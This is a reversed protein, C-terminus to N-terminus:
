NTRKDLEKTKLIQLMKEKKTQDQLRQIADQLEVALDDVSLRSEELLRRGVLDAILQRERSNPWLALLEATSGIKKEGLFVSIRALFQTDPGNVISFINKPMLSVLSPTQALISIMHQALSLVQSSRRYRQERESNDKNDKVLSYLESPQISLQKAVEEILLRYFLGKPMADLYELAKRAFSAKDSISHLPIEEKLLSFFVNSLPLSTKIKKEFDDKGIKRILSDPDEGEPLFLFRIDVGDRMLPLCAILAQWVARRGANDGDFCYVIANTYRLLKKLHQSSTATGLTAVAYTIQYQHLSIVDMYGEVILFQPPNVQKEHAEYLGYLENSKHFIPTEPSNIYKPQDNKKLIRGGFAIVRGRIDRIPFIIRNRFRDFYFHNKKILLGNAILQSRIKPHKAFAKLNEWNSPAYGLAFQGAIKGTLKRSKLYDIAVPSNKLQQQYYCSIESLLDFFGKTDLSVSRCIETPIDLGLRYSLNKVTEVFETRDFAMLFSIANGNARCGFCYYFQKTPSVTFSPTKENHFPCLGLYNRGRKKVNIRSRVLEVIDVRSLLKQIFSQPVRRM